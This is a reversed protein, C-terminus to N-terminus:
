PCSKGFNVALVNFDSANVVGDGTADGNRFRPNGSSGFGIALINFDLSNVVGDSNMDGPISCILDVSDDLNIWGANESWAYGRARFAAADWRANGIHPGFNIWGLNESWAYGSMAGGAAINVGYNTNNTNAYPAAGSGLNIWGVNEGWVSGRLYSGEYVEIGQATSNADRWNLWGVNESWAFKKPNAINSDAVVVTTLTLAALGIMMTRVM